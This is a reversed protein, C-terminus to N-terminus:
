ATGMKWQKRWCISLEVKDTNQPNPTPQRMCKSDMQLVALFFCFRSSFLASCMKPAGVISKIFFWTSSQIASVVLRAINWDGVNCCVNFLILSSFISKYVKAKSIFTIKKCSLNACTFKIVLWCQWCKSLKKFTFYIIKCIYIKHYSQVANRFKM